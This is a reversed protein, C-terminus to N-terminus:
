GAATTRLAPPCPGSPSNHLERNESGPKGGLTKFEGAPLSRGIWAVWHCVQRESKILEADQPGDGRLPAELLGCVAKIHSLRRHAQLNLIQLLLEADAQKIPAPALGLEGLGAVQQEAVAVSDQALALLCAPSQFVQM